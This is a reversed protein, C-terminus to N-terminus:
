SLTPYSGIPFNSTLTIDGQPPEVSLTVVQEQTSGALKCVSKSTTPLELSPSPEAFSAMVLIDPAGTEQYLSFRSVFGNFFQGKRRGNM